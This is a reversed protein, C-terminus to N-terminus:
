NNMKEIIKQTTKFSFKSVNELEKIGFKKVFEVGLDIISNSAGLKFEFNNYKTKLEKMKELLFYRALVSACAVSLFKEEAKTELILNFELLKCSQLIGNNELTDIHKKLNSISAYQDIVIPLEKNIQQNLQSISNYHILTKVSNNNIGVRILKNYGDQTLTTVKFMVLNNNIIYKAVNQIKQDTMKKSDKIGLEKIAELNKEPIFCAVSVVPTFYDGVGTEDVGIYELNDIM